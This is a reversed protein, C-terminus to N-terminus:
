LSPSCTGSYDRLWIDCLELQGPTHTECPIPDRSKERIWVYNADMEGQLVLIFQEQVIRPPLLRCKQFPYSKVQSGHKMMKVPDSLGRFPSPAPGFMTPGVCLWKLGKLSVASHPQTNMGESFYKFVATVRRGAVWTTTNKFIAQVQLLKWKYFNKLLISKGIVINGHTGKAESIKRIFSEALVSDEQGKTEETWM